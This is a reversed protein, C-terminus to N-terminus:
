RVEPWTLSQEVALDRCTRRVIEHASDSGIFEFGYRFANRQRGIAQITVPTCSLTFTLEVIEGLIAEIKLMVAIGSESLDVTYGNLLGCLRSNIAIDVELKFRPKRRADARLLAVAGQNHM